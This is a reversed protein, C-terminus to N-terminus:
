TDTYTDSETEFNYEGMSTYPYPTLNFFIYQFHIKHCMGIYIKLLNPQIIHKELM